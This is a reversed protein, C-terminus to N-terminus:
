RFSKNILKQITNLKKDDETNRPTSDLDRYYVTTMEINDDAQTAEITDYIYQGTLCRIIGTGLLGDPIVSYNQWTTIRGGYLVYIPYIASLVPIM